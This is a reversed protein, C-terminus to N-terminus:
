DKKEGSMKELMAVAIELDRKDLRQLLHRAIMIQDGDNTQREEALDDFLESVSVGLVGAIAEITTAGPWIKGREIMSVGDVSRDLKEALVAQTM